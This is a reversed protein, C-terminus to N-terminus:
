LEPGPSSDKSVYVFDPHLYVGINLGPPRSSVDVHVNLRLKKTNAVLVLIEQAYGMKNEEAEVM